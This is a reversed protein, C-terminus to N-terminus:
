MTATVIASDTGTTSNEIPEGTEKVEGIDGQSGQEVWGAWMRFGGERGDGM